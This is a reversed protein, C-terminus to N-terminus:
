SKFLNNFQETLLPVVEFLDGVIGYNAAKFINADPDTNIALICKSSSMGALHQIAGSIGCAIYLDPVITKGTQGVQQQQEIWGADVVARSAGVAAGLTEALKRIIHFNEPMKLGRGGSVVIRAETLDIGGATGTVVEKIKTRISDTDLTVSIHGTKGRRSPDPDIPKFINPRLTAIVAGGRGEGKINIFARGSYVPRTFILEEDIINVETCDVMLPSDLKAALGPTFDKTHSAASTLVLSPKRDEIQAALLSIYGECSYKLGKDVILVEDAGYSFLQASEEERIKEIVIVTISGQLYNKLEVGKGIVEFASKKIKGDSIEAIVLIDKTM